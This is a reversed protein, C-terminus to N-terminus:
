KLLTQLGFGRHAEGIAGTKCDFGMARCYEWKPEEFDITRDNSLASRSRPVGALRGECERM